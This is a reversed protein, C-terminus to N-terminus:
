GKFEKELYWEYTQAIGTRLDIRPTWGLEFIKSNDLLKRPTGNPKTKDFVLEGSFGIIEAVTEALSKITVEQGSGINISISEDFKELLLFCAEALDSVHLFERLPTGDGWIKVEKMKQVKANHIRTILAPLVHANELDFNDRPGYLNTPM